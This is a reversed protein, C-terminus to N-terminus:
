EVRPAEEGGRGGGGGGGMERERGGRNRGVMTKFLMVSGLPQAVKESIRDYLLPSLFYNLRNKM